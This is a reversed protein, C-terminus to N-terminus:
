TNPVSQDSGSTDLGPDSGTEIFSWPTPKLIPGLRYMTILLSQSWDNDMYTAQTNFLRKIPYQCLCDWRTPYRIATHALM